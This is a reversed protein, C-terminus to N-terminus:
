VSMASTPTPNGLRVLWAEVLAQALKRQRDHLVEHMFGALRHRELFGAPISAWFDESAEPDVVSDEGAELLLIPRDLESGLGLLARRGEELATPFAATVFHHCLPDAWYRQVLIPDSCVQSKDGPLDLPRHPAVWYLLRQLMRMPLGIDRLKLAPSTLVLGDMAGPYWLLTLLAVLGGFSHGLLVQPHAPLALAPVGDVMRPATPADHHREQRLFLTLDEVFGRIGEADGRIGASRGFGRHDMASVSWGLSHLWHATHRYREAHEGYGHSLVVRGRPSPHEWRCFALPANGRGPMVGRFSPELDDPLLTSLDSM